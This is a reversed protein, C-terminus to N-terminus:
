RNMGAMPVVATLSPSRLWPVNIVSWIDAFSGSGWKTVGNNLIVGSAEANSVKTATAQVTGATQAPPALPMGHNPLERAKLEGHWRIKAAIM